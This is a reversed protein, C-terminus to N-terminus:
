QNSLSLPAIVVRLGETIQEGLPKDNRLSTQEGSEPSEQLFQHAQTSPLEFEQALVDL